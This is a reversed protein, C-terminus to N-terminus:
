RRIAQRASVAPVDGEIDATRKARYYARQERVEDFVSVGAVGTVAPVLGVIVMVLGVLDGRHAGVLLFALGVLTPVVRGILLRRWRALNMM